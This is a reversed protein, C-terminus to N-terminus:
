VVCLFALVIVYTYLHIKLFKSYLARKMKCLAHLPDGLHIDEGGIQIGGVDRVRGNRLEEM